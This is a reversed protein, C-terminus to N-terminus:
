EYRIANLPTRIEHSINALFASKSNAATEAEEAKQKLRVQLQKNWAIVVLLMLSGILIILLDLITESVDFSGTQSIYRGALVMYLYYVITSILMFINLEMKQYLSVVVAAALFMDTLRNHEGSDTRVDCRNRIPLGVHVIWTDKGYDKQYFDCSLQDVYNGIDCYRVDPSEPVSLVDYYFIHCFSIYM